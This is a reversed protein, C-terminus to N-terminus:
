VGESCTWPDVGPFNPLVGRVSDVSIWDDLLLAQEAMQLCTRPKCNAAEIILRIADEDAAMGLRDLVGRMWSASQDPSPTGLHIPSLREKLASMVKEVEMTALIFTANDYDEIAKLLRSHINPHSRQAEDIFIIPRVAAGIECCSRYRAAFAIRDACEEPKLSAADIEFYRMDGTPSRSGIPASCAECANCPDPSSPEAGSCCGRRALIRAVSTKGVGMPGHLLIREPSGSLAIRKLLRISLDNEGQALEGFARPRAAELLSQIATARPM